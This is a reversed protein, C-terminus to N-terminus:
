TLIAPFPQVKKAGRPFLLVDGQQYWKVGRASIRDPTLGNRFNLAQQVTECENPVGEFHVLGVSPNIMRLYTWREGRVNLRHLEYPHERGDDTSFSAKDVAGCSLTSVIREAGVKRVFERRVEANDLELMKEPDLDREATLVLWDPVLVGNLFYLDEIDNQVAPGLENHLIRRSDRHLVPKAVWYLIDPTWYLIWCGSLFADYIPSAWRM